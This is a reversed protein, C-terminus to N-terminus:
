FLKKVQLFRAGAGVLRVNLMYNIGDGIPWCTLMGAHSGDVRMNDACLQVFNIHIVSLVTIKKLVGLSYYVWTEELVLCMM